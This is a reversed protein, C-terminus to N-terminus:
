SSCNRRLLLCSGPVPLPLSWARDQREGCLSVPVAAERPTRCLGRWLGHPPVGRGRSGGRWPGPCSGSVAPARRRRHLSSTLSPLFSPLLALPPRPCGLCCRAGSPGPAAATMHRRERSRSPPRRPVDRGARAQACDSTPSRPQTPTATYMYKSRVFICM